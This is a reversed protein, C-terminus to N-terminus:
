TRVKRIDRVRRGFGSLKDPAESNRLVSPVPNNFKTPVTLPLEGDFAGLILEFKPRGAIWYVCAMDREHRHPNDSEDPRDCECLDDENM